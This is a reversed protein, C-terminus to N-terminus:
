LIHSPQVPLQNKLNQHLNLEPTVGNTFPNNGLNLNPSLVTVKKLGNCYFFAGDAISTIQAPLTLHELNPCYAFALDNITTLSNNFRVTQVDKAEFFVDSGIEIVNQPLVVHTLGNNAAGYLKGDKILYRNDQTFKGTISRLGSNAIM